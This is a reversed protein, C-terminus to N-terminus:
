PETLSVSLLNVTARTRKGWSTIGLVVYVNHKEVILPLCAM